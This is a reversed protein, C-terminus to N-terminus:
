IFQAVGIDTARNRHSLKAALRITCCILEKEVEICVRNGSGTTLSPDSVVVTFSLPSNEPDLTAGAILYVASDIVTFLGADDGTLSIQNTGLADDQIEIDAVLTPAETNM